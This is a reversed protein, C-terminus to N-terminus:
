AALKQPVSQRGKRVPAALCQTASRFPKCSEPNPLLRASGPLDKSMEAIEEFPPKRLGLSFTFPVIGLREVPVFSGLAEKSGQLCEVIIQGGVLRQLKRGLLEELAGDGVRERVHSLDSHKAAQGARRHSSLVVGARFDCGTAHAQFLARGSALKLLDPVLETKRAQPPVM